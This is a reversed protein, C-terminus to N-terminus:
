EQPIHLMDCSADRRGASSQLRAERQLASARAHQTGAGALSLSTSLTVPDSSM